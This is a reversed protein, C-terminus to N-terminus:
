IFKLLARISKKEPLEAMQPDIQCISSTNLYLRRKLKAGLLWESM